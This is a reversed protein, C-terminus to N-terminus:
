AVRKTVKTNLKTETVVTTDIPAISVYSSNVSTTPNLESIETKSDAPMSSETMLIPEKTDRKQVDDSNIRVRSSLKQCIQDPLDSTQSNVFTVTSPKEKPLSSSPKEAVKEHTDNLITREHSSLMQRIQERSNRSAQLDISMVMSPEEKSIILNPKEMTEIRSSSAMPSTLAINDFADKRASTLIERVLRMKNDKKKIYSQFRNLNRHM